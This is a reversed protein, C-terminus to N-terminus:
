RPINGIIGSRLKHDLEHFPLERSPFGASGHVQQQFRM